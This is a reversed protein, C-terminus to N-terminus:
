YIEGKICSRFDIEIKTRNNINQFSNLIAKDNLSSINPAMVESNQVYLGGTM